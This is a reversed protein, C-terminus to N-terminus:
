SKPQGSRQSVTRLVNFSATECSLVPNRALHLHSPYQMAVHLRNMNRSWSVSIHPSVSNEFMAIKLVLLRTKM